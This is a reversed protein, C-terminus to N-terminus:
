GLGDNFSARGFDCGSGWGCGDDDATTSSLGSLVRQRALRLHDRQWVSYHVGTHQHDIGIASFHAHHNAM